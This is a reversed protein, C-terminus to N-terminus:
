ALPRFAICALLAAVLAFSVACPISVVSRCTWSHFMVLVFRIGNVVLVVAIAMCDLTRM